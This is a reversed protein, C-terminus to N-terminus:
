IILYFIFFLYHIISKFDHAVVFYVNSKYAYANGTACVHVTRVCLNTPVWRGRSSSSGKSFDLRHWCQQSNEVRKWEPSFLCKCASTIKLEYLFYLCMCCHISVAKIGSSLGTQLFSFVAGPLEAFSPFVWCSELLFLLFLWLHEKKWLSFVSTKRRKLWQKFCQSTDEVWM